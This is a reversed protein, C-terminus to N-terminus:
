KLQFCGLMKNILVFVELTIYIICVNLIIILTILLNFRKHNLIKYIFLRCKDIPIREYKQCHNHM